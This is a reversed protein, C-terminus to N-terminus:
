GRRPGPKRQSGSMYRKMKRVVTSQNIGLAEAMQYTNGYREYAKELLQKEVDQVADDLPCLDSIYIKNNQKSLHNLIYGPLHAPMIEVADATVAVREIINELERVNGPWNYRLLMERTEPVLKKSMGYRKNIADLCHEALPVIDEHRQRLPSVELPIVNLRYYLDERFEGERVMQKIDRNTAAIFRVDVQQPTTGGVPTVSKQQSVHLLKVQMSLPLEAVEDLFVTGGEGMQILGKKGAKQAGTFAGPAYGFLESELLNEPIAGCNISVFPGEGRPSLRHIRSAIIGKGVGSEGTILVTSDVGAVRDVMGLLRLMDASRAVIEKRTSKDSELEMVQRRYAEALRETELLRRRLETLESVDRSNIVVRVINGQDDFVPNGTVILEKGSRTQQSITVREKKDFVMKTVSPSFFGQEELELVNRGILEETSVGYYSEGARNIKQTVGKGDIVFIEDFSADFIAELENKDDRMKKLEDHIVDLGTVDQLVFISGSLRNGEYVPTRSVVLSRGHVTLNEVRDARDTWLVDTLRSDPMIEKVQRGVAMRYGTGLITGAAENMIDIRGASDTTIIGPIGASPQQM